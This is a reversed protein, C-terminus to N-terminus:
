FRHNLAGFVAAERYDSAVNSDFITYRVGLSGDTQPSLRSTWTVRFNDQTSESVAPAKADTYARTGSLNVTSLATARWAWNAAGGYQTIENALAFADPLPTGGGTIRESHTWFASFTVTNRAGLIAFSGQIPQQLFIQETYFSQPGFLFAPLGTQNIFQQVAAQRAVPDPIRATFIADLLAATNGPPLAFALQPYTSINRSASLSWATLRTRHEFSALYSSGFFREEYNAVVNTRETPRWTLGGGYIAGSRSEALAYNNDEYGGSAYVTLQPDIRYILRARGVQTTLSNSDPYQLNTRNYELAWGIARVTNEVQATTRNYYSRRVATGSPDTWDFDSRVLYTTGGAVQGRFYPSVGYTRVETRNPTTSALDDPRPGFPSLFQQSLSARADVFFFKEVAELSANARLNNYITNSGTTHAYVVASPAYFAEVKLRAGQGTIGIGPTLQLIVDSEEQGKPALRANDTATVRGGVSTQM